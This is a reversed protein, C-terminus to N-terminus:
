SPFPFLKSVFTLISIVTFLNRTGIYYPVSHKSSLDIWQTLLFELNKHIYTFWRGLTNPCQSSSNVWGLSGLPQEVKLLTFKRNLM